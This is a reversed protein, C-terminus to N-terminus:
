RPTGFSQAWYVGFESSADVAYAAGMETYGANMLNACHPPSKIWGEVAEEARTPGAAINEGTMRYRYGTAQVRQAPTSGDRGEHAFYNNKAMDEAHRSAAAALISNWKLPGAPQFAADGCRRPSRRAQNVLQLVREGAMAQTEQVQPAFPAALVIVTRESQQHVGVDALTPDALRACYSKRLIAELTADDAPGSITIVFTRTARYGAQKVAANLDTGRFLAIAANELRREMRLPAAAPTAGCVARLRNLAEYPQQALAFSCTGFLCAALVHAALAAKRSERRIM